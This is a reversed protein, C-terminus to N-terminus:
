AAEPEVVPEVPAEVAKPVSEAAVEVPAEAVPAEIFEKVSGDDATYVITSM